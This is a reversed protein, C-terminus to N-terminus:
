RFAGILREVTSVVEQMQAGKSLYLDFVGEDLGRQVLENTKCAQMTFLLISIKLSYKAELQRVSKAFEYGNQGPHAMDTVILDIPSKEGLSNKIYLIASESHQFSQIFLKKKNPDFCKMFARQFLLHDDLHVIKLRKTM